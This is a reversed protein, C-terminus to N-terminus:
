ITAQPRYNVTLTQGDPIDIGGSIIDRIIMFYYITNADAAKCYLAIENVTILAGSNNAFNRTITLQSTTSDASPAGFATGGYQVQGSGSGHAIPAVLSYDDITVPTTDTGVMIGYSTNGSGAETLFTNGDRIPNRTVNATDQINHTTVVSSAMTIFLIQLFQKVYSESKRSEQRTVKGDKDTVTFDLMAGFEGKQLLSTIEDPRIVKSSPKTKLKADM